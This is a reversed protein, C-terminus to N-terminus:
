DAIVIDCTERSFEDVRLTAETVARAREGAFVAEADAITSADALGNALFVNFDRMTVVDPALEAPVLAALADHTAIMAPQTSELLSVYQHMYDLFGAEREEQTPAALAPTLAIDALARSEDDYDSVAQLHTCVEGAPGSTTTTADDRAATISAADDSSDDSCGAVAAVSLAIVALRRRSMM